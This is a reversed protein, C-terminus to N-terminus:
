RGPWPGAFVFRGALGPLWPVISAYLCSPVRYRRHARSSATRAPAHLERNSLSLGSLCRVSSPYPRRAMSPPTKPLMFGSSWKDLQLESHPELSPVTIAPKRGAM